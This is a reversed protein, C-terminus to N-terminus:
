ESPEVAQAAVAFADGVEETGRGERGIVPRPRPQRTALVSGVVVLGFGVLMPVTLTESLVLVGLLAAVAPNVYTIVTGRVPGIEDILASFTPFAAATCVVGLLAVAGLVHGTPMTDPRQVFAIPAYVVACLSLALAMVGISPLGALRRALIVPGVAYCVVVVAMEALAAENSPGFTVGVISAVGILGVLLGVLGTSEVRDRSRIIWAIVTGVLPVGAVLLAALSSDVREEASGLLVWPVAVEVVAFAVVWRWRRLVPRLDTRLLARPLLIAAAIAPRGFVLVSPQIEAVAIRIFLYPIGWIVAMLAFLLIARRTM